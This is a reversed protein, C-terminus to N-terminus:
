TQEGMKDTYENMVAMVTGWGEGVSSDTIVKPGSNGLIIIACHSKPQEPHKFRMSYEDVSFVVDLAEEETKPKEWCEGDWIRTLEYGHAKAVRILKRVVKREDALRKEIANM